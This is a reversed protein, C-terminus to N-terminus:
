KNEKSTVILLIGDEVSFVAENDTIENSTGITSGVPLYMNDLPYKVGSGCVGRCDTMPFLSVYQDNIHPLAASSNRIIMCSNNKDRIVLRDALHVKGTILQINSITHDLRGGLGGIILIDRFGKDLATQLCIGTDTDDKESPFILTEIDPDNTVTISDLDGILMDPRIGAAKAHNYGGDACLIFDPDFDGILEPLNGEIYSTIIVCKNM